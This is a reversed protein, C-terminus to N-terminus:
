NILIKLTKITKNKDLIEFSYVGANLATNFNIKFEQNIQQNTLEGRQIEQGLMNVIRYSYTGFDLKGLNVTIGDSKSTPNPYATINQLNINDDTSLTTTFLIKFRVGQTTTDSTVEFPYEFISGDIPMPIITGLKLDHLYAYGNYQFNETYIKLKYNNITGGTLRIFLEDGDSIPARHESSLATTGNYFALTETPNSFKQVDNDDVNNNAGAYFGVVCADRHPITDGVKELNVRIREFNTNATRGFVNTLVTSTKNNEHIYFNSSTAGTKGKVFFAQGSQIVTTNQGNLANQAQANSYQNVPDWTVYNGFTGLKPDMLWIKPAITNGNDGNEDIINSFDIPSAYPNGILYYNTNNITYTQTGTLLTGKARLTTAIKNSNGTTGSYSRRRPATIFTLFANNKTSNFLAFTTTSKSNSVNAWAGNNYMRFNHTSPSIYALGVLSETYTSEPGWVDTGLTNTPSTLSYTTNNQWNNYISNNTSGKLPATLLRWVRAGPLYREVTVLGTIAGADVESVRATNSATSTLTLINGTNLTANPVLGLENTISVRKNTGSISMITSNTPTNVYLNPTTISIGTSSVGVKLTGNLNISNNISTTNTIQTIGNISLNYLNNLNSNFLTEGSIVNINPCDINLNCTFSATDINLTEKIYLNTSFPPDFDPDLPTTYAIINGNGDDSGLQFGTSNYITLSKLFNLNIDSNTFLEIGSGTSLEGYLLHYDNGYVFSGPFGIVGTSNNINVIIDENNSNVLTFVNDIQLYGGNIELKNTVFVEDTTHHAIDNNLYLENYTTGYIESQQSTGYYYVKSGSVAFNPANTLYSTVIPSDNEHYFEIISTGDQMNYFNNGNLGTGNQFTNLYGTSGNGSLTLKGSSHNISSAIYITSAVRNYITVNGSVNINPGNFNMVNTRYVNPTLGDSGVNINGLVSLTGTGTLTTIRSYDTSGTINFDGSVTLTNGSTISLAFDTTGNTTTMQNKISACQANSINIFLKRQVTGDIIIDDGAGPYIGTGVAPGNSSLSWTTNANWNGSTAIMYYTTANTTGFSALFLFLTIIKILLSYSYKNEM